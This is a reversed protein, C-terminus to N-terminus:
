RALPRRAVVQVVAAEGTHYRGEVVERVCECGLEFELGALEERLGALTMLLDETQPGGTGRGIQDPTYAELVIVGGPRLGAVMRRHLDVRIAQPVHAFISVIAAWHDAVIEFHALDAVITHVEVGREAALAAAKAMGQDAIDVATVLHGREALFVANRGQGEAICLVPGAPIRDVVSRLFDNPETGYAYGPEAYRQNWMAAFM